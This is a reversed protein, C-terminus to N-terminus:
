TETETLNESLEVKVGTSLFGCLSKSAVVPLLCLEEMQLSDDGSKEGPFGCM